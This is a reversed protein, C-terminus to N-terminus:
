IFWFFFLASTVRLNFESIGFFKFIGATAYIYLPNKYEGFAKFFVPWAAGYQDYGHQSISAANIGISTEDAYLGRPLESLKWVHFFVIIVVLLVWCFFDLLKINNKQLINEKIEPEM